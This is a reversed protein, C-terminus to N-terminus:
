RACSTRSRGTAPRPPVATMMAPFLRTHAEGRTTGKTRGSLRWFTRGCTPRRASARWPTSLGNWAVAFRRGGPQPAAPLVWAHTKIRGTWAGINGSAVIEVERYECGRPDALGQEFLKATATLLKELLPARPPEWGLRQQPPDPLSDGEFKAPQQAAPRAQASSAATLLLGIALARTRAGRRGRIPHLFARM